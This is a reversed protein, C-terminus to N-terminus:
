RMTAAERFKLDLCYARDREDVLVLNGAAISLKKIFVWQVDEELKPDIANRFVTVEWLLKGSKVNRAQVYARRGDDNPVSFRIAGQSIPPVKPPPTRKALAPGALALALFLILFLRAM